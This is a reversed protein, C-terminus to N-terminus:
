VLLQDIWAVMAGGCRARVCGRVRGSGWRVGLQQLLRVTALDGSAAAAAYAEGAEEGAVMKGSGRVGKGVGAVCGLMWGVVAGCGGRAADILLGTGLRCGAGQHLYRVLGMDGRRVALRLVDTRCLEVGCKQRMIHVLRLLGRDGAGWCSCSRECEPDGEGAAVWEAVMGKGMGGGVEPWVEVLTKVTSAGVPCGAERVLWGVMAGDGKEAAMGLACGDVPCGEQLLWAAAELRGSLAAYCLVEGTLPLGPSVRPDGHLGVHVGPDSSQGPGARPDSSKGPSVRPDGSQGPGVWPDGQLFAMLNVDGRQAAELLAHPHPRVGRGQLWLLKAVAGEGYNGGACAGGDCGCMAAAAKYTVTSWALEREDMEEGGYDGASGEGEEGGDGDLDGMGGAGAGNRGAGDEAAGGGDGARHGHGGVGLALPEPVRTPPPPVPLPCGARDVLWEAMALPGYRLAAALVRWHAVHCGHAHLWQLRPLDGSKAAAAATEYSLWTRVAENDCSGAGQGTAGPTSPAKNDSADQEAGAAGLCTCSSSSPCASTLQQLVWELKARADPTRSKAAANVVMRGWRLQEQQQEEQQGQQEKMGLDAWAAPEGAEATGGGNEVGAFGGIEGWLLGWATKLGAQDEYRAAAALARWPHVPVGRAVMWPLLVCVHGGAAAATGPDPM